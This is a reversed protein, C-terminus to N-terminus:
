MPTAPTGIKRAVAAAECRTGAGHKRLTASVDHGGAKESIFPRRASM